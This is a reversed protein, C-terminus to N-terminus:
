DIVVIGFCWNLFLTDRLFSFVMRMSDNIRFTADDSINPTTNPLSFDQYLVRRTFLATATLFSISLPKLNSKVQLLSINSELTFKRRALRYNHSVEPSFLPAIIPTTTCKCKTTFCTTIINVFIASIINLIIVKFVTNPRDLPVSRASKNICLSM